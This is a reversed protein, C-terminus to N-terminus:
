TNVQHKITAYTCTSICEIRDTCNQAVANQDGIGKFLKKNTDYKFM